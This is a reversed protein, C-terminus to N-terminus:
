SKHLERAAQIINEALCDPPRPLRFLGTKGSFCRKCVVTVTHKPDTSASILDSLTGSQLAVQGTRLPDVPVLIFSYRIATNDVFVGPTSSYSCM